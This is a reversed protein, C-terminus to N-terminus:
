FPYALPGTEVSFDAAFPVLGLKRAVALSAGNSGDTSYLPTLGDARVRTAWAIVARPALGRGRFPTATEVGAEAAAASRRACFCVSVARGDVRVACVPARGAAIEGPVWGSFHHNLEHEDDVAVVDGEDGLEAPFVFAPGSRLRGGLLSAYREAHRLPRDWASTPVEESALRLVELAVPEPVNARVAWVCNSVGRVFAFAPGPSPGPERTSVIRGRADTVFLTDLQLRPDATVM